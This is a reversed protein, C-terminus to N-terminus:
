GGGPTAAAGDPAEALLRAVLDNSGGAAAGVIMRVPREPYASAAGPLAPLSLILSALLFSCSFRKTM